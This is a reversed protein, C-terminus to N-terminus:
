VIKQKGLISLKQAMKDRWPRSASENLMGGIVRNNERTQSDQSVVRSFFQRMNVANQIVKAKVNFLCFLNYSHGM